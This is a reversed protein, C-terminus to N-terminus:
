QSISFNSMVHYRQLNMYFQFLSFRIIDFQVSTLYGEPDLSQLGETM